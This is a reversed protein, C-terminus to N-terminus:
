SVTPSFLFPLRFITFWSMPLSSVFWATYVRLIIARMFDSRKLRSFDTAAPAAHFSLYEYRNLFKNIHKSKM